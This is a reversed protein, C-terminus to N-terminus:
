IMEEDRNRLYAWWDQHPARPYELVQEQTALYLLILWIGESALLKISLM